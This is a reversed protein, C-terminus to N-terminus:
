PRAEGLQQAMLRKFLALPDDIGGQVWGLLAFYYFAAFAVALLGADTTRPLEGDAKAQEVLMAVHTTVRVVQNTFRERWPEEAFLSERLLTRSLRPRAAYYAYFPRAVAALRSLLPGRTKAALCRAIAKELDDHLAAHLLGTKDSFHLLVTGTAVGSESAIARINAADFGDREFHLRAVDLIRAQTAQKRAHRPRSVPPKAASSM